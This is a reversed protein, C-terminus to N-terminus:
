SMGRKANRISLIVTFGIMFWPITFFLLVICYGLCGLALIFIGRVLYM